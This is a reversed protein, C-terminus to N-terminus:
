VRLKGHHAWKWFFFLKRQPLIDNQHMSGRLRQSLLKPASLLDSGSFATNEFIAKRVQNCLQALTPGKKQAGAM